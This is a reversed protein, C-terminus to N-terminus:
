AAGVQPSLIPVDKLRYTSHLSVRLPCSPGSRLLASRWSVGLSKIFSKSITTPDYQLQLRILVPYLLLTSPMPSIPFGFRLFSSNSCTRRWELRWLILDRIAQDTLQLAPV